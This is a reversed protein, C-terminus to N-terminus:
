EHQLSSQLLIRPSGYHCGTYPTPMTGEVGQECHSQPFFDELHHFGKDKIFSRNKSILGFKEATSENVFKELDYRHAPEESTRGRKATM